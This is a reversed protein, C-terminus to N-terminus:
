SKVFLIGPVSLYIHMIMIIIFAVKSIEIKYGMQLIVIEHLLLVCFFNAKKKPKFGLFLASALNGHHFHCNQLRASRVACLFLIKGIHNWLVCTHTKQSIVTSCHPSQVDGCKGVQRNFNGVVLLITMKRFYFPFPFYKGWSCTSLKLVDSSLTRIYKPVMNCVDLVMLVDTWVTYTISISSSFYLRM